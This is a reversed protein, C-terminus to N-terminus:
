RLTAGHHLVRQREVALDDPLNQLVEAAAANIITLSSALSALAARDALLEDLADNQYRTFAYATRM